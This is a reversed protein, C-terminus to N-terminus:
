VQMRMIEQYAEILKNRMAMTLQLALDAREASIMVQHVDVDQGAALREVNRDSDLQLRNVQDLASRLTEAFSQVKGEDQAASEQGTSLKAASTLVDGTPRQLPLHGAHTRGFSIELGHAGGFRPPM